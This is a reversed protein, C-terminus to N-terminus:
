KADRAAGLTTRRDFSRALHHDPLPLDHLSALAPGRPTTDAVPPNELFSAPLVIRLEVTEGARVWRAALRPDAPSAAAVARRLSLGWANVTAISCSM